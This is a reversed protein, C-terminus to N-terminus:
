ESELLEAANPDRRIIEGSGGCAECNVWRLRQAEHARVMEHLSTTKYGMAAVKACLEDFPLDGDACAQVLESIDGTRAQLTVDM